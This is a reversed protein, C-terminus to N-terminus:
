KENIKGKLLYMDIVMECILLTCNKINKILVDDTTGWDLFYLFEDEYEPNIFEMYFSDLVYAIKLIVQPQPNKLSGDELMKITEVDEGILKALKRQSYGFVYKRLYKIRKGMSRKYMFKLAGRKKYKISMMM